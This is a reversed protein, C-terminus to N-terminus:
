PFLMLHILLLMVLMFDHILLLLELAHGHVRRLGYSLSDLFGDLLHFRMNPEHTNMNHSFSHSGFSDVV